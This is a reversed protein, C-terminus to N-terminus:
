ISRTIQYTCKYPNQKESSFFFICLLYFPCVVNMSVSLIGCMSYFCLILNFAISHSASFSYCYYAQSYLRSFLFFFKVRTVIWTPYYFIVIVSDLSFAIFLFLAMENRARQLASSQIKIFCVQWKWKFSIDCFMKEIRHNNIHSVLRLISKHGNEIQYYSVHINDYKMFIIVKDHKKKQILTCSSIPMSKKARGRISLTECRYKRERNAHCLVYRSYVRIRM